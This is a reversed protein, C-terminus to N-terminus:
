SRGMMKEEFIRIKGDSKKAEQFYTQEVTKKRM